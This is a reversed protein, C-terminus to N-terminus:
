ASRRERLAHLRSRVAKFSDLADEISHKASIEERGILSVTESHLAREAAKLNRFVLELERSVEREM